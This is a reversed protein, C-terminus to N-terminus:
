ARSFDKYQRQMKEAKEIVMELRSEGADCDEYECHHFCHPSWVGLFQQYKARSFYDGDGFDDIDYDYVKEDIMSVRMMMMM